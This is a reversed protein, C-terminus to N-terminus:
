RNIYIWGTDQKGDMKDIVYFYTADPLEEGSNSQGKWENKYNALQYVETGYRNYITLHKVNLVTLDFFDNKGDNNPTIGKQIACSIDNFLQSYTASCGTDKSTVVVTYEGPATIAVADPSDTATFTSPSWDFTSNLVDFSGSASTVSIVFKNSECGGELGVTFEPIITVSTTTDFPACGEPAALSYTITYTGSNSSSPTIAGSNEDITM